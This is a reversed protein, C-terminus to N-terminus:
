EVTDRPSRFVAFLVLLDHNVGFQCHGSRKKFLPDKLSLGPPVLGKGEVSVVILGKPANMRDREAMRVILDKVKPDGNNANSVAECSTISIITILLVVMTTSMKNMTNQYRFPTLIAITTASHTRLCTESIAFCCSCDQVRQWQGIFRWDDCVSGM